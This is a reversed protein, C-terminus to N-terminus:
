PNLWNLLEEKQPQQQIIQRKRTVPLAKIMLEIKTAESRDGIPTHFVLELQKFRRTFKAGHPAGTRHQKLRAVPDKAIGTYLVKQDCLLLYVSWPGIKPATEPAM